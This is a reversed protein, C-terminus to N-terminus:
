TRIVCSVEMRKSESKEQLGKISEEVRKSCIILM